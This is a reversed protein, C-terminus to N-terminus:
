NPISVFHLLSETGNCKTEYYLLDMLDNLYNSMGVDHNRYLSTITESSYM